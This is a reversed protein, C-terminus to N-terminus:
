LKFMTSIDMLQDQTDHLTQLLVNLEKSIQLTPYL